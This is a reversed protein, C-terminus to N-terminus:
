VIPDSLRQRIDRGADDEPAQECAADVIARCNEDRRFGIDAVEGRREAHMKVPHHRAIDYDPAEVHRDVEDHRDVEIQCESPVGQQEDGAEDQEEDIDCPNRQRDPHEGGAIAINGLHDSIHELDYKEQGRDEPRGFGQRVPRGKHHEVREIVEDLDDPRRWDGWREMSVRVTSNAIKPALERESLFWIKDCAVPPRTMAPARSITVTRAMSPRLRSILSPSRMPRTPWLPEPLVVSSRTSAPM